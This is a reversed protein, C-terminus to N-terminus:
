VIINMVIDCIYSFIKANEPFIFVHNLFLKLTVHFISDLRQAGTYSIKYFKNHISQSLIGLMAECIMM